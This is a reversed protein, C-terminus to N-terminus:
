YRRAKGSQQCPIGYGKVGCFQSARSFEVKVQIKGHHANTTSIPNM